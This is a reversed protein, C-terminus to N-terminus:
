AASKSKQRGLLPELLFNIFEERSENIEQTLAADKSLNLDINQEVLKAEIAALRARAVHVESALAMVVGFVRDLAPDSFFTQEPNVPPALGEKMPSTFM